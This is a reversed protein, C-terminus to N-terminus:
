FTTKNKQIIKAVVWVCVLIPILVYTAVISQWNWQGQVKLVLFQGLIIAVCGFMCFIPGFPYFKARYPLSNLDNGNRVFTKRFQYHSIAIGFWAIFGSLSSISVLLFFAKGNGIFYSLFVFAGFIATVFVAFIPTGFTNTKALVRPANGEHALYWLIRTASYMDSNCASLVAMLIVFNMLSAAGRLGAQSFIITFPSLAIHTSSAHILRPDTSPILFCIVAMTLIYFILIRWFVSRTARPMSKGPDDAEGATIGVLETGQFSFGAILLTALLTEWNGHFAGSGSFWNKFGVAPHGLEGTILLIGIIIFTIIAIVKISSLWYESEAYIRVPLINIILIAFFFIASWAAFPIQPFWYRAIFSAASLEVAITIAWNFFYNYGMSLGFAPNVFDTCYKCFAGSTPMYATMEGLSAMLFYVLFGIIIFALLAGFPGATYIANGSAVFLGTGLSGGIAIMTIHRSKLKRQLQSNDSM